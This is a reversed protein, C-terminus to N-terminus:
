LEHAVVTKGAGFAGNIWILMTVLSGGRSRAARFRRPWPGCVRSEDVIVLAPLADALDPAGVGAVAAPVCRRAFAMLTHFDDERLLLRVQAVEDASLPRGAGLLRELSADVPSAVLRRMDLDGGGRREHARLALPAASDGLSAWHREDAERGAAM